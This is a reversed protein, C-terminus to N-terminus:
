KYNHTLIGNAYYVDDTEVNLKYIRVDRDEVVISTIEIEDGNVDEYIDGSLVESAKLIKWTGNRKVVHNHSHTTYLAGNNFNFIGRIIETGNGTVIATSSTGNINDSNWSQLATQGEDSDPLSPINKSMVEDGVTLTEVAVSSSPSTSIMTGEMVCCESDYYAGAAYYWCGDIGDDHSFYGYSIQNNGNATTYLTTSTGIESGNFFVTTGSFSNCASSCNSSGVGFITDSTRPPPPSSPPTKSVSRTPSVPPTVSISPTASAPPTDSITPTPSPTVPTAPVTLYTYETDQSDSNLYLTARVTVTGGGNAYDAWDSDSVSFTSSPNSPVSSANGVYYVSGAGNAGGNGYAYIDVHVHSNVSYSTMSVNVTGTITGSSSRSVGSFTVQGNSTAVAPPSNPPSNPPTTSPTPSVGPTTSISPTISISPTVSISPTKSPSVSITPTLSPSITATPTVSPTVSITPTVSVTPTVTATVSPTVSPTASTTPTVSPTASPTVTATPTPSPPIYTFGNICNSVSRFIFSPTNYSISTTLGIGANLSTKSIVDTYTIGDITIDELKSDTDDYLSHVLFGSLTGAQQADTESNLYVRFPGADSINGLVNDRAGKVLYVAM